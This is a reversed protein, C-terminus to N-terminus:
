GASEEALTVSLQIAQGDRIVQLNVQEGPNHNNLVRGLTSEDEIDQGDVAKIVDLRQLGARSAPSGPAVQAIIIGPGDSIGLRSAIAPTLATYQIGLYPHSAHGTTRLQQAVPKASDIAIAFGIGQAQVGAEAVGAALTNIGVVQGDLNVLPGGSNGPNIAADTQILDYLFPGNGSGQSGPEQITRGLASVVGATVTPGGPLGLANGIAVVWDGAHLQGSDGLEAVPLNQGDIKVVALDTRPDAGVVRGDFTRGDPLAVTLQESGEVVHNNTLIYGDADYIVGSGVGTQPIPQNFMDLGIQQSTIQVVAPKVKEAVTRVATMLNAPSTTEQSARTQQSTSDLSSAAVTHQIPSGAAPALIGNSYVAMLLLLLSLFVTVSVRRLTSM